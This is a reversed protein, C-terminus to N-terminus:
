DLSFSRSQKAGTTGSQRHSSILSSARHSIYSDAEVVVVCVGVGGLLM